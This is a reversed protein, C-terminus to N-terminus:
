TAPVAIGFVDEMRLSVTRILAGGSMLERSVSVAAM